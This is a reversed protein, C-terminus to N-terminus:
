RNNKKNWEDTSKQAYIGGVFGLVLVAIIIYTLQVGSM